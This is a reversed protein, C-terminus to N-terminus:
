VTLRCIFSAALPHGPLGQKVCGQEKTDIFDVGSRGGERERGQTVDKAECREGEDSEELRCTDQEM